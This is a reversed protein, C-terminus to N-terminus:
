ALKGGGRLQCLNVKRHRRAKLCGVLKDVQNFSVQPGDNGVEVSAEREITSKM